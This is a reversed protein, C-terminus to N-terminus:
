GAAANHHRDFWPQFGAKELDEVFQEVWREEQDVGWAYSVFLEASPGEAGPHSVLSKMRALAPEVDPRQRSTTTEAEIRREMGPTFGIPEAARPIDLKQGCGNCFTFGQKQFKRQVIWDLGTRCGSCEVRTWRRVQVSRGQEQPHQGPDLFSEFLGQFMQRTHSPVQRGFLLYFERVSGEG